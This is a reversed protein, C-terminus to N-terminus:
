YGRSYPFGQASSIPGYLLALEPTWHSRLAADCIAYGWNILQEQVVDDIAALRTHIEALATPDRGARALTDPEGSQAVPYKTFQTRIGWYTGTRDGRRIHPLWNASACIACRIILSKWSASPTSRGTTPPRSKPRWKRDVTM